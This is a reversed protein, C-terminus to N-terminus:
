RIMGMHVIEEPGYDPDEDLRFSGKISMLRESGFERELDDLSLFGYRYILGYIFATCSHDAGTLARDGLYDGDRGM